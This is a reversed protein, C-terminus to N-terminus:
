TSFHKRFETLTTEGNNIPDDLDLEIRLDCDRCSADGVFGAADDRRINVRFRQNDCDGAPCELEGSELMARLNGEVIEIIDNM